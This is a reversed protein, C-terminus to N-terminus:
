EANPLDDRLIVDFALQCNESCNQEMRCFNLMQFEIVAVTPRHNHRSHPGVPENGDTM